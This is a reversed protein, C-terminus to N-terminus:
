ISAEEDNTNQIIQDVGLLGDLRLNGEVHLKQQPSSTGIGVNGSVASYMDNGTITWDSDGGDPPQWSGVGDADSTLVLGQAAGDAMTLGGATKAYIAYPTPTLEQRPELAAYLNPDNMDGPRVGIELWRGGGNFARVDNFDLLVTFYGDIVDMDPVNVDDGIQNGLVINPDDFLRFQLDYLGDAIDGADILRGQYTFATTTPGATASACLWLMLGLVVIMMLQEKRKM